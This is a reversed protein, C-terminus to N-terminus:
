SRTGGDKYFTEETTHPFCTPKDCFCSESRNSKKKKKLFRCFMNSHYNNSLIPRVNNQKRTLANSKFKKSEQLPMKIQSYAHIPFLNTGVSLIPWETDCIAWNDNAFSWGTENCFFFQGQITLKVCECSKWLSWLTPIDYNVYQM